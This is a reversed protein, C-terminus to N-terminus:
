TIDLVLKLGKLEIASYRVGGNNFSVEVGEVLYIKGEKEGIFQESYSDEFIQSVVNFVGILQNEKDTGDQNKPNDYERLYITKQKM